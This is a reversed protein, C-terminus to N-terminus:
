SGKETLSDPRMRAQGARLDPLLPAPDGGASVPGREYAGGEPRETPGM